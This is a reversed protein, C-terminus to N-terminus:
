YFRWYSSELSSGLLCGWLLGAKEELLDALGWPGVCPIGLPGGVAALAPFWGSAAWAAVSCPEAPRCSARAPSPRPRHGPPSPARPRPLAVYVCFGSGPDRHIRVGPPTPHRSGPSRLLHPPPSPKSRGLHARGPLWLSGSSRAISHSPAPVRRTDLSGM